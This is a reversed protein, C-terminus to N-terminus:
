SGKLGTVLTVAKEVASEFQEFSIQRAKRRDAESLHGNVIEDVLADNARKVGMLLIASPSAPHYMGQPDADNAQQADECAKLNASVLSQYTITQNVLAERAALDNPGYGFGLYAHIDSASQLAHIPQTTCFRSDVARALQEIAGSVQNEQQSQRLVKAIASVSGGASVTNRIGDALSSLSAAPDDKASANAPSPQESAAAASASAGAGHKASAKASRMSQLSGGLAQLNGADQDLDSAIDQDPEKTLASLSDLYKALIQISATDASFDSAALSVYQFDPNVPNDTYPSVRKWDAVSLASACAQAAQSPCFFGNATVSGASPHCHIAGGSERRCAEAVYAACMHPLSAGLPLREIALPLATPDDMGPATLREGPSLLPCQPDVAWRFSNYATNADVLDKYFQRTADVAKQSTDVFSAAAQQKVVREGCGSLLLLCSWMALHHVGFGMRM